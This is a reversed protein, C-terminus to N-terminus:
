SVAILEKPNYELSQLPSIHHMAGLPQIQRQADMKHCFVVLEHVECNIAPSSILIPKNQMNRTFDSCWQYEYSWDCVRHAIYGSNIPLIAYM